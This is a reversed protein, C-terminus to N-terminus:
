DGMKFKERADDFVNCMLSYHFISDYDQTERPVTTALAYSAWGLMIVCRSGVFSMREHEASPRTPFHLETDDVFHNVVAYPGAHVSNNDGIYHCRLFDMEAVMELDLFTIRKKNRMRPPLAPRAWGYQEEIEKGWRARAQRAEEQAVAIEDSISQDRAANRKFQPTAYSRQQARLERLAEFTAQDQYREAVMYTHDNMILTMVTSHEHMTRLRSEAGDLLGNRMLVSIETAIVCSRSHLGLMLLCALPAGTVTDTVPRPEKKELHKYGEAFATVMRSNLLEAFALLDDLSDLADHWERAIEECTATAETARSQKITSHKALIEERLGPPVVTQDRMLDQEISAIESARIRDDKARAYVRRMFERMFLSEGADIAPRDLNVAGGIQASGILRYWAIGPVCARLREVRRRDARAETGGSCSVARRAGGFPQTADARTPLGPPHTSLTPQRRRRQLSSLGPTLANLTGRWLHGGRLPPTV